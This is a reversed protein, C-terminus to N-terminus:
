PLAVDDGGNMSGMAGWVGYPSPGANTGGSGFCQASLNGTDVSDALFRTSGDFMAINVGGPHWSDPPFMYEWAWENTASNCAVTNPGLITNFHTVVPGGGGWWQGRRSEWGSGNPIITNNPGKHALCNAPNQWFGGGVWYDGHISNHSGGHAITTESLGVTTSTGDTIAEMGHYGWRKGLPSRAPEGTSWVDACKDGMSMVYNTRGTDNWWGATMQAADSPCRLTSLQVHWPPYGNGSGRDAEIWPAPGFPPYTRGGPTNNSHNMGQQPSTIQEYLATEEIFPTLVAYAGLQGHNGTVPDGTDTGGWGAPFKGYTDHYNQFALMWQKLNNICESRRAAERAAQIAPLLLAVLIGIIAIVVLLEVLTFGKRWRSSVLKRM